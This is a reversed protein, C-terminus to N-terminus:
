CSTYHYCSLHIEIQNMRLFYSRGLVVVDQSSASDAMTALSSGDTNMTYRTYIPMLPKVRKLSNPM